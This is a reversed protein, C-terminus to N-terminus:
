YFWRFHSFKKYNFAYEHLLQTNKNENKLLLNIDSIFSLTFNKKSKKLIHKKISKISKKYRTQVKVIYPFEKKQRKKQKVQKLSVIPATKVVFFKILDIHNKSYNKQLQKMSRILAKESLRKKGKVILQNIINQKLIKPDKIM